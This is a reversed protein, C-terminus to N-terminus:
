LSLTVESVTVKGKGKVVKAIEDVVAFSEDDEVRAFVCYGGYASDLHENHQLSIFMESNGNDPVDFHAIAMAGRDNTVRDHLATENVPLDPVPNQVNTGYLGTQIVFDSRYFTSQGTSFLGTSILKAVHTITQPAANHLFKLRISGINTIIIFGAPTSM